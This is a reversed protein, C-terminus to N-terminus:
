INSAMKSKKWEKVMWNTVLVDIKGRFYGKYREHGDEEITIWAVMM